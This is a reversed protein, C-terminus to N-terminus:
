STFVEGNPLVELDVGRLDYYPPNLLNANIYWLPKGNYDLGVHFILNGPVVSAEAIGDLDQTTNNYGMLSVNGARDADFGYISVDDSSLAYGWLETGDLLDLAAVYIGSQYSLNM